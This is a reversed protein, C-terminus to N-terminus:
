HQETFTEPSDFPANYSCADNWQPAADCSEANPCGRTVRELEIKPLSEGEESDKVYCIVALERVRLGRKSERLRFKM